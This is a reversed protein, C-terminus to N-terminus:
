AGDEGFLELDGNEMARRRRIAANEDKVIAALGGDPDLALREGLAISEDWFEDTSPDMQAARWATWNEEDAERQEAAEIEGLAARLSTPDALIEATEAWFKEDDDRAQRRQERERDRQGERARIEQAAIAERRYKLEADLDGGSDKQRRGARHESRKSINDPAPAFNHPFNMVVAADDRVFTKGRVFEEGDVSFSHLAVMM